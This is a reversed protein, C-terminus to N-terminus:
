NRAPGNKKKLSDTKIFSGSQEDNRVIPIMDSADSM